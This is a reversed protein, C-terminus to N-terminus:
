GPTCLSVGKLLRYPLSANGAGGVGLHCNQCFPNLSPVVKLAWHCLDTWM